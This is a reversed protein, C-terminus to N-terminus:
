ARRLSSRVITEQRCQRPNELNPNQKANNRQGSLGLMADDYKCKTREEEKGHGARLCVPVCMWAYLPAHVWAHVCM